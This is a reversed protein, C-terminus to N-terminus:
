RDRLAIVVSVDDFQPEDGAFQYVGSLLADLIGQAASAESTPSGLSAQATSLMRDVGFPERLRNHADVVGDTYLLLAAGPPLDIVGQEWRSDRVVGLAMGTRLLSHTTFEPDPSFLLPPPHGANCYTLTAGAPDLIGYFVTVFLGGRADTLLRHNAAQLVLDPRTPHEAAYTRILTRSLAMYLAAGMGKDAVDAIVIGLRGDPLSVFDYFDGSTERAPKLTAALQWGHLEPPAQPLLSAQMRWAAALEWRRTSVEQIARAAQNLYGVLQLDRERQEVLGNGAGRERMTVVGVPPQGVITLPIARRLRGNTDRARLSRAQRCARAELRDASTSMEAGTWARSGSDSGLQGILRLRDDQPVVHWVQAETVDFASSLGRLLYRAARTEDESAYMSHIIAPLLDLRSRSNGAEISAELYAIASDWRGAMTLLRGVRGPHFHRALFRTYIANQLRYNDERVREVVGTLYLPDVDPSLPLPLETMPVMERELLLLICRLLDPDDEILRVAEQLPAYRFVDNRLFGRVVQRVTRSRVRRSSTESALQVCRQCISRILYPDGQAARLLARLAKDTVATTDTAVYEQIVSQSEIESLDGVFVRHAIGRFPSSEGVTLTALSLAGSVVVVLRCDLTQQEMYAARLSTLLAQVLDGPIAELHEIILVLDRQLGAVADALFARFMASNVDQTDPVPLTTGVREEIGRAIISALGAFFSRQTSAQMAYLDVYLCVWDPCEALKSDVFRLLETKGSLRPGLVACYTGEEVCRIIERAADYKHRVLTSLEPSPAPGTM